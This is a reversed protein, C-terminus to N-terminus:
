RVIRAKPVFAALAFWFQEDHGLPELRRGALPGATARGTVDWTSGTQRDAFGAGRREFDLTRGGLRRDFVGVTGVDRSIAVKRQDLVSRVGRAYLVVAPTGGARLQVVPRRALLTFPVVAVDRGAFIAAVREKPPLRRDERGQYLFAPSQPQDYGVYPNEGYPRRHGTDRSLVDGDPYARKFQAWGLTQSSLTRLKTGTLRGAVADGTLQQWWSETQRDWMVLDSNRLNGTTGFSLTRRDVRRDFVLSSNCLPCYTVAIPRGGLTDNAIEHWVLIQIPYARAQGDLEVALVPERASLWKDAHAESTPRPKDIPPIGDRQPGGSQFESLPVSHKSFDTKWGSTDVRLAKRGGGRAPADKRSPGDDGAFAVIVLAVVLVLPAILWLRKMELKSGAPSCLTRVSQSDDLRHDADL